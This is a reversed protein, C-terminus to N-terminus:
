APRTYRVEALEVVSGNPRRVPYRSRAGDAFFGAREYFRRASQNAELVWLRVEPTGGKALATVATSLLARGAGNGWHEPEVYIAVVEGVARNLQEGDRYPGFQVYGVTAGGQEAVMIQFTGPGRLREKFRKAREKFDGMAALVDDPVIGAYAQQWGRTNIRVIDYADDPGATRITPPLPM